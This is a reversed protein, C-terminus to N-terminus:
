LFGVSGVAGGGIVSGSSFNSPAKYGSSAGSGFGGISAVSQSGGGLGASSLGVGLGLSGGGLSSGSGSSGVALGFYQELTKRLLSQNGEIKALQPNSNVLPNGFLYVTDISYM